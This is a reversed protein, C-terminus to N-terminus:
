NQVCLLTSNAGCSGQSPFTLAGLYAAGVSTAGSALSWNNCTAAATASTPTGTIAILTDTPYTDNAFVDPPASLTPVAKLFDAASAVVQVDDPRFWPTSVTSFRTWAAHADDPTLYALFDAANSLSAATAANKCLTDAATRGSGTNFAATLPFMVHAGSPRAAPAVAVSQGVGFCLLPHSEGCDPGTVFTWDKSGAGYLGGLTSGSSSTWDQCDDAPATSVRNGNPFTFTVPNFQTPDAPVQGHEDLAAPYFIAGSTLGAVSDAFPKGDPRLWGRSTGLAAKADHGSDSLWAVYDGGLGGNAAATACLSNAHAISALSSLPFRSSTLFVFNAPKAALTLTVNGDTTPTVTCTAGSAACGSWGTVYDAQAPTARLSIATGSDFTAQCTGACASIGAPTSTVTGTGTVTIRLTIQKPGTSGAAGASNSDGAEGAAAEGGASVSGGTALSGGAAEGGTSPNGGGAGGGTAPAGSQAAGGNGSSSSAGGGGSGGGTPGSGSGSGGCALPLPLGLCVGVVVADRLRM